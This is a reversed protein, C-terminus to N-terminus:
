NYRNNNRQHQLNSIILLQQIERLYTFMSFAFSLVLFRLFLVFHFPSPVFICLYSASPPPQSAPTSPTSTRRPTSQHSHPPSAPIIPSSTTRRPVTHPWVPPAPPPAQTPAPAPTYCAPPRHSTTFLPEKGRFEFKRSKCIKVFTTTIASFFHPRRYFFYHSSKAPERFPRIKAATLFSQM